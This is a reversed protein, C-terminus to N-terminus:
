DPVIVPLYPPNKIRLSFDPKWGGALTLIHLITQMVGGRWHQM